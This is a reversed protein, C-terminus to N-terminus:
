HPPNFVTTSRQRRGCRSPLIAVGSPLVKDLGQRTKRGADCCLSTIFHSCNPPRSPTAAASAVERCSPTLGAALSPVSRSPRLHNFHTACVLVQNVGAATFLSPTPCFPNSAHNAALWRSHRAQRRSDSGQVRRLLANPALLYLTTGGLFKKTRHNPLRLSGM